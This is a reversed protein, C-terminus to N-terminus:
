CAHWPSPPPRQPVKRSLKAEDEAAIALMYEQHINKTAKCAQKLAKIGGKVHDVQAAVCLGTLATHDQPFRLCFPAHLGGGVGAHFLLPSLM